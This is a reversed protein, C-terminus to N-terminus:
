ELVGMNIQSLDDLCKALVSLDNMDKEWERGEVLDIFRYVHVFCYIYYVFLVIALIVARVSM